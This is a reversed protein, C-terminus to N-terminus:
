LAVTDTISHLSVLGKRGTSIAALDPRTTDEPGPQLPCLWLEATSFFWLESSMARLLFPLCPRHPDSQNGRM